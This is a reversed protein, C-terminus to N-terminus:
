RHDLEYDPNDDKIQKDSEQDVEDKFWDTGSAAEKQGKKRDDCVEKLWILFISGGFFVIGAALVTAIATGVIFTIIELLLM